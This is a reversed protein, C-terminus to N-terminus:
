VGILAANVVSTTLMIAAVGITGIDAATAIAISQMLIMVIAGLCFAFKFYGIGIANDGAGVIGLIIGAIYIAIPMEM